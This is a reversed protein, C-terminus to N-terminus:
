SSIPTRRISLYNVLGKGRIVEIFGSLTTGWFVPHRGKVAWKGQGPYFTINHDPAGKMRSKCTSPINAWFIKLGNDYRLSLTTLWIRHYGAGYRTGDIPELHGAGGPRSWLGHRATRIPRLLDVGQTRLYWVWHNRRPLWPFLAPLGDRWLICGWRKMLRTSISDQVLVEFVYFFHNKDNKVICLILILYVYPTM